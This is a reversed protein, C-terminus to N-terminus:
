KNVNILSRRNLEAPFPGLPLDRVRNYASRTYVRVSRHSRPPFIHVPFYIQRCAFIAAQFTAHREAARRGFTWERRFEGTALM